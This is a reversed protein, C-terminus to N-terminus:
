DPERQYKEYEPTGPAYPHVANHGEMQAAWEAPTLKPYWYFDEVPKLNPHSCKPDCTMLLPPQVPM